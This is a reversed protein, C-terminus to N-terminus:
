TRQFCSMLFICSYLGLEVEFPCSRVSFAALLSSFWLTVALHSLFTCSITNCQSFVTATIGPCASSCFTDEGALVSRFLARCGRFLDVSGWYCMLDWERWLRHLSSDGLSEHIKRTHLRWAFDNILRLPWTLQSSYSHSWIQPTPTVFLPHISKLVVNCYLSTYGRHLSASSISLRRGISQRPLSCM